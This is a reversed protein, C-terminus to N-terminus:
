YKGKNPDCEVVGVPSIASVPSTYGLMAMLRGALAVVPAFLALLETSTAGQAAKAANLIMVYEADSVLSLLQWRSMSNLFSLASFYEAPVAAL